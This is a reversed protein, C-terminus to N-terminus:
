LEWRQALIDLERKLNYFSSDRQGTDKVVERRAGHIEKFIRGVREYEKVLDSHGSREALAAFIDAQIGISEIIQFQVPHTAFQASKREAFLNTLEALTTANVGAVFYPIKTKEGRFNGLESQYYKIKAAKGKMVKEAIADVKSGVDIKFTLDLSLAAIALGGQREIEIISDVGNAIDDFKSPMIIASNEGFWMAQDGEQNFIAEFIEAKEGAVRSETDRFDNAHFKMERDKVYEEDNAVGAEGYLDSFDATDIRGKEIVARARELAEPHKVIETEVGFGENEPFDYKKQQFKEFSM